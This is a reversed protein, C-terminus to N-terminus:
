KNDCESRHVEIQMTHTSVAAGDRTFIRQFTLRFREYINDKGIRRETLTRGPRHLKVAGVEIDLRLVILQVKKLVHHEHQFHTATSGHYQRVVNEKLTTSALSDTFAKKRVEIQM